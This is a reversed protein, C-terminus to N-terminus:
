PSDPGDPPAEKGESQARRARAANALGGFAGRGGKEGSKGSGKRPRGQWPSAFFGFLSGCLGGALHAFRSASDGEFAAAIERGMYLLVVLIFTLPIENRDRNTFSSLLVMMFVVSSAGLLPSAFFCVNVVGTAFGTVLIMLALTLSGYASELLPGLILIFSLNAILHNWGAHGFIHTFLLIYSLPRKPNFSVSSPVTFLADILSLNHEAGFRIGLAPLLYESAGFIAACLLSFTLTVPANYKIKM